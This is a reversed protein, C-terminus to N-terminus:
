LRSLKVRNTPACSVHKDNEEREFRKRHRKPSREITRWAIVVM